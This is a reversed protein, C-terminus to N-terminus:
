LRIPFGQEKLYRKAELPTQQTFHYISAAAVASAKSGRLVDAMDQYSGAGGSAIVPIKVAESVRKTLEIDYGQMLGDREVSTILIEGAGRKECEKAMDVPDRGTPTKGAHMMCEWKGPGTSKADISAVVCQAGFSDAIQTILEPIEYLATNIAIKDAGVQPLKRVDDVSRIGGGVTLPMFCEDALDDILVFDTARKEETARIDLFILEDVERMNYLKVAQMPAGVPRWSDFGKGKVLQTGKYLLTPIVRIKHM